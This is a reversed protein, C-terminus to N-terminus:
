VKRAPWGRKTGNWITTCGVAVRTGDVAVVTADSVGVPRGEREGVTGALTTGERVGVADGSVGVVPGSTVGVAVLAGPEGVGVTPTVIEAVGTSGEGDAVTGGDVALGVGTGGEVVGTGGVTVGTGAVAVDAGGAVRADAEAVGLPVAWGHGMFRLRAFESENSSVARNALITRTMRSMPQRLISRTRDTLATARTVGTVSNGAGVEVIVGAGGRVRVGV